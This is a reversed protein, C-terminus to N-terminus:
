IQAALEHWAPWDHFDPRNPLLPAILEARAERLVHMWALTCELTSATRADGPATTPTEIEPATFSPTM